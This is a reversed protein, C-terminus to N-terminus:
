GKDNDEVVGVAADAIDRFILPNDNRYILFGETVEDLNMFTLVHSLIESKALPFRKSMFREVEKYVNSM